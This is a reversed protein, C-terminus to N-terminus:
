LPQKQFNEPHYLYITYEYLLGYSSDLVVHPTIESMCWALIEAPNKYYLNDKQFNVFTTMLNFAVGCRTLSYMKKILKKSFENMALTSSNMKQTLIGNCVAYDCTDIEADLIDGCVFEYNPHLSKAQQIMEEVIDVGIYSYNLNKEEILDLLAGYGCGVDLISVSIDGKLVVGLMKEQRLKVAWEKSGWDVGRSNPGNELITNKYHDHLLQSVSKQSM